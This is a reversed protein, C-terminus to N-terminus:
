THLSVGANYPMGLDHPLAPGSQLHPSVEVVLCVACVSRSPPNKAAEAAASRSPPRRVAGVVFARKLMLQRMVSVVDHIMSAHCEKVLNLLQQLLELPLYIPTHGPQTEYICYIAYVSGIKTALPVVTPDPRAQHSTNQSYMDRCPEAPNQTPRMAVGAMLRAASSGTLAASAAPAPLSESSAAAPAASMHASHHNTAPPTPLSQAIVAAAEAPMASPGAQMRTSQSGLGAPLVSIPVCQAGVKAPATPNSTLQTPGPAPAALVPHGNVLDNATAVPELHVSAMACSDVQPQQIPNAQCQGPADDQVAQQGFPMRRPLAQQQGPVGNQPSHSANAAQGEVQSLSKDHERVRAHQARAEASRPSSLPAAPLDALLDGSFDGVENDIDMDDFSAAAQMVSPSQQWHQHGSQPQSGNVLSEAYGLSFPVDEAVRSALNPEEDMDAELESHISVVDDAIDQEEDEDSALLVQSLDGSPAAPARSPLLDVTINPALNGHADADSQEPQAQAPSVVNATKRSPWHHLPVDLCDLAMAYLSQVFLDTSLDTSNGQM